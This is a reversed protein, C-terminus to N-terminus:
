FAKGFSFGLAAPTIASLESWYSMYLRGTIGNNATFRYGVEPVLDISNLEGIYGAMLGFDLANREGGVSAVLGSTGYLGFLGAGFSTSSYMRAFNLHFLRREYTLNLSQNYSRGGYGILVVNKRDKAGDAGKKPLTKRAVGDFELTTRFGTTMLSVNPTFDSFAYSSRDPITFGIQPAFLLRHSDGLRLAYEFGTILSLTIPQHNMEGPGTGIPYQYYEDRKEIDVHLASGLLYSFSSTGREYLKFDFMIPVDIGVTARVVELGTNPVIDALGEADYSYHLKTQRFYAGSRFGVNESLAMRGTLGFAFDLGQMQSMGIPEAVGLLRSSQGTANLQLSWNSNTPNTQGDAAYAALLLGFLPMKWINKM